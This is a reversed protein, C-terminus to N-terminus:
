LGGWWYRSSGTKPCAAPAIWCTKLHSPSMAVLIPRSRRWRGHSGRTHRRLGDLLREPADRLGLRGGDDLEASREARRPDWAKTLGYCPTARPEVKVCIVHTDVRDHRDRHDCPCARDAHARPGRAAGRRHRDRARYGDGIRPQGAPGGGSRQGPVGRLVSAGSGGSGGHTWTSADLREADTLPFLRLLDAVLAPYDVQHLGNRSLYVIGGVTVGGSVAEVDPMRGAELGKLLRCVLATKGVGPRGAVTIIM